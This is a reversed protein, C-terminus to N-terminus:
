EEAGQEAEGIAAQCKWEETRNSTRNGAWQETARGALALISTTLLMTYKWPFDPPSEHHCNELYIKLAVSLKWQFVFLTVCTSYHARGAAGSEEHSWENDRHQQARWRARGGAPCNKGRPATEWGTPTNQLNLNLFHVTIARVLQVCM